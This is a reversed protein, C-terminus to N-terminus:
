TTLPSWGVPITVKAKGAGWPPCTTSKNLPLVLRTWTGALTVTGPPCRVAVKGMVVASVGGTVTSVATAIVAEPTPWFAKVTDGRSPPSKIVVKPMMPPVVVGPSIRRFPFAGLPPAVTASLPFLGDILMGEVTVTGCPLLWAVKVILELATGTVVVVVTVALRFPTLRCVLRIRWGASFYRPTGAVSGPPTDAEPPTIRLPVAGCAHGTLKLLLLGATAETGLVTLTGAPLLVTDKGIVVVACHELLVTVIVAVEPALLRLRGSVTVGGGALLRPKLLETFPPFATIAVTYIAYGAQVAPCGTVSVLEFGEAALTGALTVTGLPWFDAVNVMVVVVTVVEVATVM